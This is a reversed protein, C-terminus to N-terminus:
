IRKRLVVEFKDPLNLITSFPDTKPQLTVGEPAEIKFRQLIATAFLFLEMRALSEGLCQRRGISFPLFNEKKGDLKGNEDLFHEPYLHDPKQWFSKKKQCLESCVLLCTGKPINYGEFVVDATASHILSTPVLSSLRLVDLLMADVYELRSKDALCPLRTLPVVEDLCRQAKAQVDPYISLLLIMWRLTSSTTESGGLFNEIMMGYLQDADYEKLYGTPDRDPKELLYHDIVDRPNGPDLSALHERIKDESMKTLNELCREALKVDVFMNLIFKPLVNTLVPFIDLFFLRKQIIDFLVNVDECYKTIESDGVEYRTSAFMQWIVNVVSTNIACDMVAPKDLCTRELHGVLLSAEKQISEELVTKGMGLSRLQRLVFRRNESWVAGDTFGVGRRGFKQMLKFSFFDPRGQLDPHQFAKKILDYDAFVVFTRAGWKTTVVNGYLMRDRPVVADIQQQMRTAYEPYRALLYAVWKLMRMSHVTDSGAGIM